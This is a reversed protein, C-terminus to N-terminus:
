SIWCWLFVKGWVFCSVFRIKLIDHCLKTGLRHLAKLTLDVFGGLLLYHLNAKNTVISVVNTCLQLLCKDSVYGRMEFLDGSYVPHAAVCVCSHSLGERLLLALSPPAWLTNHGLPASPRQQWQQWVATSRPNMGPGQGEPGTSSDCIWRWAVM